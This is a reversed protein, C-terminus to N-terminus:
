KCANAAKVAAASGVLTGALAVVFASAALGQAWTSSTMTAGIGLVIAAPELRLFWAAAAAHGAQWAEESRCLAPLRIGVFPNMPLRGRTVMVSLAILIGAVALAIPAM